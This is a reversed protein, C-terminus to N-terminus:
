VGNRVVGPANAIRVYAELVEMMTDLYLEVVTDDGPNSSLLTSACLAWVEAGGMDGASVCASTIKSVCWMRDHDSGWDVKCYVRKGDVM